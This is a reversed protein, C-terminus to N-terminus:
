TLGADAGVGVHLDAGVGRDVGWDVRRRGIRRVRTLAWTSKWSWSACVGVHFDVGVDAQFEAGVGVGVGGVCWNGGGGGLPGGADANVGLLTVARCGRM